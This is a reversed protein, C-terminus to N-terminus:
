VLSFVVISFNELLLIPATLFTFVTPGGRPERERGGKFRSRIARAEVSVRVPQLHSHEYARGDLPEIPGSRVNVPSHGYM